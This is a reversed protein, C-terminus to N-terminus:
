FQIHHATLRKSFSIGFGLLVHAAEVESAQWVGSQRAPDGEIRFVYRGESTRPYRELQMGTHSALLSIITDLAAGTLLSVDGLKLTSVEITVSNTLGLAEADIPKESVTFPRHRSAELGMALVGIKSM